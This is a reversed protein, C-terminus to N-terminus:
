QKDGHIHKSVRIVRRDIFVETGSAAFTKSFNFAYPSPGHQQLYLQHEYAEEWSPVYGDNVWWIVYTPWEPKLFWKERKTLAEAHIGSYSFSFLDELNTWMTLTEASSAHVGFQFFPSRPEDDGAKSGAWQIFGPLQTTVQHIRVSREMFGAISPHDYWEHLISFTLIAVAPM